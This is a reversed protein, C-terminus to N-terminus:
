EIWTANELGRWFQKEADHGPLMSGDPDPEISVRKGTLLSAVVGFHPEGLSFTPWILVLHELGEPLGHLLCLTSCRRLVVRRPRFPSIMRSWLARDSPVRLVEIEDLRTIGSGELSGLFDVPVKLGRIGASFVPFSAFSRGTWYFALRVEKLAEAMDLAGFLHTEFESGYGDLRCALDIRHLSRPFRYGARWQLRPFTPISLELHKLEPWATGGLLLEVHAATSLSLRLSRLFPSALRLLSIELWPARPMSLDLRRVFSWKSLGLPDKFKLFNSLKSADFHPRKVDLDRLLVSMGMAYFDKNGLSVELLSARWARSFLCEMIPLILEPPLKPEETARPGATLTGSASGTGRCVDLLLM